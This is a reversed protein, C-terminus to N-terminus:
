NFTINGQASLVTFTTNAVTCLLEVANYQTSSALYGGTGTTTTQVGFHILQSANQAIQWGGAGKGCVRIVTGYAATSPLTLTCLGANDATYGMNVAMAQTTGTVDTWSTVGGPGGGSASGTITVTSGTASVVTGGAGAFTLVGAAPTATGTTPNTVFSSAGGGASTSGLNGTSDVIVFQTTAGVAQGYLEPSNIFGGANYLLGISGTGNPTFSMSGNTTGSISIQGSVPIEDNSTNVAINFTGTLNDLGVACSAADGTGAPMELYVYPDSSTNKFGMKAMIIGKLTQLWSCTSM